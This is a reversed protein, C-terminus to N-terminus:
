YILGNEQTSVLVGNVASLTYARGGQGAWAVVDFTGDLGDTTALKYVSVDRITLPTGPECVQAGNSTEMFYVPGAGVLSGQGSADILVASVETHASALSYTLAPM